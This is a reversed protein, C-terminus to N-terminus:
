RALRMDILKSMKLTSGVPDHQVVMQLEGDRSVIAAEAHGEKQFLNPAKITQGNALRALEPESPVLYPLHEVATIPPMLLQDVEDKKAAAQVDDLTLADKLAISGIQTRELTELLGGTKLDAGIDRALARIYTGASVEAEVDIHPYKYALLELRHVTVARPKRDIAIGKRAMEYMRRGQVKLASYNPPLQQLKGTYKALVLRIAKEEPQVPPKGDRLVMTKHGDIDDTDSTQGLRIRGRYTKHQQQFYDVLLTARGVAVVLIGTAFPDLTGAHGIRDVGTITRLKAIVDFSTWNKPKNIALFGTPEAM